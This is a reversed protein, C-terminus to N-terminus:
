DRKYNKIRIRFLAGFLTNEASISGKHYESIIMRCMYLGLGTGNKELKTSFYPDFINKMVDEKIGGGNDEIEIVLDDAQAYTTIAIRPNDVCSELLQDKANNLLNLIVQMFENEYIDIFYEANLEFHVDIANSVLSDKILNYAKLIVFDVSLFEAEKNPKYFNSFDTIIHSLNQTYLAIKNLREDLFRLFEERQERDELDFKELEVAMTITIQTSSIASLPQKWQHAIMSMMEGMQALRSQHLMLADKHKMEEEQSVKDTIDQVTGHSILAKGDKDYSTESKEQVYKVKGNPLLLRHRVFYETKERISNHFSANTYELDDPHIRSQFVKYLDIKSRPNVEFIEYTQKSWRLENTKLNYIWSGIQAIAQAKELDLTAEYAQTALQTNLVRLEQQLAENEQAKKRQYYERILFFMILLVIFVGIEKYYWYVKPKAYNVNIWRNLVTQIDEPTLNKALKNMISFLIKDDNRVAFSVDITFDFQGNIKLRLRSEKQLAYAASMLIDIHGDYLGREVGELGEQINKVYVVKLKPHHSLLTEVYSNGKVISFTKSFAAEIDLIYPEESKTVVVLPEKYYVDTFNFYKTRSPAYSALPLIDCERKVAKLISEDWSSTPVLQFKVGSKKSVTKLIDAGIGLFEDKKIASYPLADPQTCFSISGMTRIYEQEEQSFSVKNIDFILNQLNLPEKMSTLIKYIDYIRQLKDGTISGLKETGEYALTKLANGEFVLADRSKKQTNYKQLIVDVSEEIHSFAYKWGKLSAEKFAEVEKPNQTANKQSTYLIDSYINLEEDYAYFSQFAISRKRLEYPENSIYASYIDVKGDILDELNFTHEVLKIDSPLVDSSKLMINVLAGQLIDDTQMLTKGKFDELSNIHSSKLTLLVNPLSQFIAALLTIKKGSSDYQILSARGVGYTSSGNAVDDKVDIANTFKKFKVDFGADKYFGKEKAMYYGAFQFQDLWLLQLSVKKLEAEKAYLTGLILFLILVYRM